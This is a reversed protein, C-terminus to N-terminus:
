NFKKGKNKMILNYKFFIIFIIILSLILSVIFTILIIKPLKFPKIKENIYPDKFAHHSRRVKFEFNKFYFTGIRKFNYHYFINAVRECLFGQMRSQYYISHNTQFFKKVYNLVDEDTKFNNRKDFEFLIDYIFECYKLFDEKKMIFMNNLFVRKEQSTKLATEYYEPKLKKIIDIIEDYKECIHYKCFQFRMGKRKFNPNGLIVDNNKFMEDPDPINDTFVFYRRYQNMGIYKSSITGKKYLQYIYYLRSMEGYARRMNYLKGKNAYIINLKYKNKLQSEDDAVITYAPNYRYNIFDQHAMIFIKLIPEHDKKYKKYIKIKKIFYDLEFNNSILLLILIIKIIKSQKKKKKRHNKFHFKRYKRRNGNKKYM